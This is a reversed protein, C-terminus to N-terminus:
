LAGPAEPAQVESLANQIEKYYFKQRPKKIWGGGQLELQLLVLHLGYFKHLLLFLFLQKWQVRWLGPLLM